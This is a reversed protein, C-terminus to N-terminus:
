DDKSLVWGNRVVVSASSGLWWRGFLASAVPLSLLGLVFGRRPSALQPSTINLGPADSTDIQKM